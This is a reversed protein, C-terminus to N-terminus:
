WMTAVVSPFGAFLLTAALHLVQDPQEEHGKATECASLFALFAQPLRLRMLSTVSLSGDRLHFSSLLPNTNHQTGHCAFHVINAPPLQEMVADVTANELKVTDHVRLTEVVHKIEDRVMPLAPLNPATEAAIVLAKAEKLPLLVRQTRSHLLASLTPTYSSVFFDSISVAGSLKTTSGAAHIPLFAFSGVPVWHLRKRSM